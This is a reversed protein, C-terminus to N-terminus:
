NLNLRNKLIFRNIVFFVFAYLLYLLICGLLLWTGVSFGINVAANASDAYLMDTLYNEGLYAIGIILLSNVTQCIFYIAFYMGVSALIKHKKAIQSGCTVALYISLVQYIFSVLLILCVELVM